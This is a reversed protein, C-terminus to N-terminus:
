AAPRSVEVNCVHILQGVERAVQGPHEPQYPQGQAWTREAQQAAHHLGQRCLEWLAKRQNPTMQEQTM